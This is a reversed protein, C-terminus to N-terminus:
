GKFKYWVYDSYHTPRPYATSSNMGIWEGPTEQMDSDKTPQVNSYMIWVYTQDGKDGKIGDKIDFTYVTEDATVMKFHHIVPNTGTPALEEFTKIGGHVELFQGMQNIFNQGKFKKATNSQEIVLLDNLGISEAEDLGSIPKDAM